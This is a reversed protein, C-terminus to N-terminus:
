TLRGAFHRCGQAPREDSTSEDSGMTFTGAPIGVMEPPTGDTEVLPDFESPGKSNSISFLVVVLGVAVGGLIFPLYSAMRKSRRSDM